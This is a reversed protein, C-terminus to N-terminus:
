SPLNIWGMTEFYLLIQYQLTALFRYIGFGFFLFILKLIFFVLLFRFISLRGRFFLLWVVVPTPVNLILDAALFTWGSPM